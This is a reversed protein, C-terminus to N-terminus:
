LMQIQNWKLEVKKCQLKPSSNLIFGTRFPACSQQLRLACTEGVRQRWSEIRSATKTRTANASHQSQIMAFVLGKVDASRTMGAVLWISVLLRRQRHVALANHDSHCALASRQGPLFGQHWYVPSCVNFNYIFLFLLLLFLLVVVSEREGVGENEDWFSASPVPHKGSGWRNKMKVQHFLSPSVRGILPQYWDKNSFHQTKCYHQLTQM